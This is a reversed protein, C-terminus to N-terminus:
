GSQREDNRRRALSRRLHEMARAYKRRVTAASWGRAVAVEEATWGEVARLLVIARTDPRLSAVLEKVWGIDALEDGEPAILDTEEGLPRVLRLRERRALDKAKNRAIRFLWPVFHSPKSLRPLNIWAALFAAQLADEADERRRLRAVLDLFLARAYQEYLRAFAARDGRIARRVEGADAM